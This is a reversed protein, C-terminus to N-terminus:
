LLFVILLCLEALPTLETLSGNGPLKAILIDIGTTGYNGLIYFNDSADVKIGTLGISQESSLSRQWLIAGSSDYKAIIAGSSGGGCIYVENSSNVAIGSGDTNSGLTRQWRLSGSTDYKAIVLQYSGSIDTSGVVYVNSSADIAIGSGYSNVSSPGALQRHWLCVGSPDYKAIIFYYKSTANIYSLGCIYVNGSSDTAIGHGSSFNSTNTYNPHELDRTWLGAGSANYKIISVGIPGQGTGYVNGSSDTAMAYGTRMGGGFGTAGDGVAWQYAGSSDYKATLFRAPASGFLYVKESSDLALGKTSCYSYETENLSRQWQLAGTSNFKAIVSYSVTATVYDVNIYLDGSPTVALYSALFDASPFPDSLLSIYGTKPPASTTTTTPAQTTTTVVPAATTTIPAATTTITPTALALTVTCWSTAWPSTTVGNATTGPFPGPKSNLNTFRVNGTQGDTLLGAHVAAKAFDSDSTYGYVNDGWVSSGTTKGTISAIGSIIATNLGKLKTGEIVCGTSPNPLSPAATTTIPIPTSHKHSHIYQDILLM